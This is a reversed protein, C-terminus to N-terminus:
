NANIAKYIKSLAIKRILLIYYGMTNAKVQLLFAM